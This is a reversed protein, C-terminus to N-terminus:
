AAAVAGDASAPRATLKVGVGADAGGVEISV